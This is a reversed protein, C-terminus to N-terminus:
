HQYFLESYCSRNKKLLKRTNLCFCCNKNYNKKLYRKNYVLTTYISNKKVYKNKLIYYRSKQLFFNSIQELYIEFM